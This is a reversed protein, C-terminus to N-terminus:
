AADGLRTATRPVPLVVTFASGAGPTSEVSVTGGLLDVLRRVIYLGLGVGGFRRTTRGDAQRFMEFIVSLNEPAIGIGTDRVVLRLEAGDTTAEVEVHGEATFKLANGMLNKLITKTKRRDGVLHQAAAATQWRLTVGAPVLGDFERALEVLLTEVDVPEHTVTERGAELRGLDLTAEVLDFLELASRRVRGLKDTQEPTLEGFTSELLLDCYGTIVNLPTRLEHSMTSVFDSKLRNASQLDAILRQNELAVATAHAVGLALRHQRASFPGTRERYGHALVAVITDGRSIPVYLSSANEWRRMLEVPVLAHAGSEPVEVLPQSRLAHLLPLSDLGFEVQEMEERVEPRSGANARLRFAERREDWVFISSWDCGLTEVALQSVRELMDPANLCGQAEQSVRLLAAAIEAEEEALRKATALAENSHRRETADRLHATLLPPGEREIRAIALEIPVESGDARVATTELRRGVLASAGTELHHRLGDDRRGGPSSPTVLDALSRGIVASRTQRFLAEAAANLAIIRGEHNMTVIADLSSAVIAANVSSAEALLTSRRFVDRGYRDLLFAAGVSTVAGAALALLASGAGDGTPLVPVAASFGTLSALAVLTQLRWGWPLVAAVGTLLCTQFLACREASVGAAAAQAIMLVALAGCAAAAVAGTWPRLASRRCAALALLAVALEVLHLRVLSPGRDPHHVVGVLVVLGTVVLVLALGAALREHITDAAHLRYARAHRPETGAAVGGPATRTRETSTKM